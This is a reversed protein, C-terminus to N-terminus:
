SFSIEDNLEEITMELYKMPATEQSGVTFIVKIKEM